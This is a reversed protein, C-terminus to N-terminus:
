GISDRYNNGRSDMTVLLPGFEEVTFKWMAEPIGLDLWEVGEVKKIARAALLAAGGTFDCYVAGFRELGLRTKQGMGGKGIIMRVKFREIFEAAMEEMRYSTTPGAAVVSWSDDMRKVVPGCHYLVGEKLDTLVREGKKSERIARRHAQDRATVVTGSIYVIDGIDLGRVEIESLPTKLHISTM